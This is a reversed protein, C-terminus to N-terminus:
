HVSWDGCRQRRTRGRGRGRRAACALWTGHPAAALRWKVLRGCACMQVTKFKRWAQVAGAAHAGRHRLTASM